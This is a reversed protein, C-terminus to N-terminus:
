RNRANKVRDNTIGGKLITVFEGSQKTIVVDEGKIFFLVEEPQGRWFGIRQETANNWIDNIIDLIKGRDKESAPDLHYDAAHKGVKKGFQKWSLILDDTGKGMIGSKTSKELTEAAKLYKEKFEEFSKTKDLKFFKAREKMTALEDADMAARARTLALCRCNCDEAPDGFEGPYMATKGDMEFPEDVERIQGDLDKHTPRTDGDMIADWQKVVDAGKAKATKRADHQSAQQIRHGETRVISKARALPAGTALKINRAIDDYPMNSAVGRTLVNSIKKKLTALDRGLERYVSHTLKTDTMVAKIAANRDIPLIMPVGQKHLNYFTGVFGTTYSDNMYQEITQYTEGHLKAITAELQEKTQRQFALRNQRSATNAKGQLITIQANVHALAANYQRELRHLTKKEDALQAQIVEKERKLM